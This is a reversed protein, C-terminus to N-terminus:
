QMKMDAQKYTLYRYIWECYHSHYWYTGAQNVATFQYDFSNGPAIPCQTVGVPGDAWATGKQFLGHWHQVPLDLPTLALDSFSIHSCMRHEHENVHKHRDAPQHCKFQIYRGANGFYIVLIHM